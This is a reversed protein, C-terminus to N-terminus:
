FRFMLSGFYDIDNKKSCYPVSDYRDLVGLRIYLNLDPDLLVDLTVRARVRYNGFNAADPYYDGAAVLKTRATLKYEFDGGFQFETIWPQSPGGWEREQGIGARFKLLTFGDNYATYSVGNHAGVRWDITQFADYELQFQAYYSLWDLVPIEDRISLFGMNQIMWGDSEGYQYLGYARLVNEPDDYRIDGGVLAKFINTNGSNGSLGAEIGIDWPSPPKEVGNIIQGSPSRIPGGLSQPIGFPSDQAALPAVAAMAFVIATLALRKM